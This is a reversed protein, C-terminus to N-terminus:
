PSPRASLVMRLRERDEESLATLTEVPPLENLVNSALVGSSAAVVVAGLLLQEIRRLAQEIHSRLKEASSRARDRTLITFTAVVVVLFAVSILKALVVWIRGGVSNAVVETPGALLVQFAYYIYDFWSSAFRESPLGLFAQVGGPVTNILFAGMGLLVSAEVIATLLKASFGLVLLLDVGEPSSEGIKRISEHTSKFRKIFATFQEANKSPDNAFRDLDSKSGAMMQKEQATVVWEQLRNLWAFPALVWASLSFVNYLALAAALFLFLCTITRAYPGYSICLWLLATLGYCSASVGIQQSSKALWTVGAYARLLAVTPLVIPFLVLYFPFFILAFCGQKKDEKLLLYLASALLWALVTIGLSTRHTWELWGAQGRDTLVRGVLWLWFYSGYSRWVIATGVSRWKGKKTPGADAM